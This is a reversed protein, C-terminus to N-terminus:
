STAVQLIAKPATTLRNKIEDPLEGFTQNYGKTIFISDYGFGNAGQPAAAIVGECIGKTTILVRVAQQSMQKPAALVAVSVLRASRHINTHALSMLLLQNREVDSIETGGLRASHVGPRGDLANVELGSDDALTYMGTQTSYGIAKTTANEEYTEGFEDVLYVFPFDTLTRISLPLDKLIRTIERAKGKNSTAVLIKFPTSGM